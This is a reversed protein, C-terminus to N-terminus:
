VGTTWTGLYAPAADDICHLMLYNVGLNPCYDGNVVDVTGPLTVAFIGDLELTIIRDLITNVITYVTPGAITQFKISDGEFDIATGVLASRAAPILGEPSTPM